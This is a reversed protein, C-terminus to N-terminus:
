LKLSQLALLGAGYAPEYRPQIVKINPHNQALSTAFRAFMNCKGSWVNGTTVVEIDSNPSFISEIVTHTAEVLEQISRDIIQNAVIDHAAAAFDIIPALAAIEKVGWGRRYIVEVLDEITVLDLNQQFDEMLRTRIGRGDYARLAAQMGAIAIKYASGDDGLVHGWGGVRKTEGQQNRGFVVSGTGVAVVIGVDHGIGGYLSVLADSCVVINEPQLNWTIPLSKGDQLEQVLDQVVELDVKRGIGALGLCIASIELNDTTQVAAQIAALISELTAAIGVNQYNSPGAEGRGLVQLADNTLVCVTNSGGGDIGLVYNM